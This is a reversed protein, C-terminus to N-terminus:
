LETTCLHAERTIETNERSKQDLFRWSSTVTHPPVRRHTGAKECFSLARGNSGANRRHRRCGPPRGGAATRSFSPWSSSGLARVRCRCGRVCWGAQTWCLLSCQRHQLHVQPCSVSVCCQGRCPFCFPLVAHFAMWWISTGNWILIVLTWIIHHLCQFVSSILVNTFRDATQGYLWFFRKFFLGLVFGKFWFCCVLHNWSM